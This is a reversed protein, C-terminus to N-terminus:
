QWVDRLKRETEMADRLDLFRDAVYEGLPTLGYSPGDRAIWRREEFDSLVRGATSAFAGTATRLDARDRVGATLEELVGVRHDSRALFEVEDM